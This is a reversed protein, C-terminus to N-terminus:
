GDTEVVTVNTTPADVNPSIVLPISVRSEETQGSIADTTVLKVPLLIDGAFDGPLSLNVASFDARGNVVPVSLVYEQTEFNTDVGTLVFGAPLDSIKVVLSIDDDAGKTIDVLLAQSLQQGLDVTTTEGDSETGAIVLNSDVTIDGAPQSSTAGTFNVEVVLPPPVFAASADGENNDGEDQVKASLQIFVPGSIVETANVQLSALASEPVLWSGDGNNFGGPVFLKNFFAQTAPDTPDFPTGSADQVFTLVVQIINENSSGDTNLGDGPVLYGLSMAPSSLDLIGNADSQLVGTVPNGTNDVVAISGDTEVAANLTINITGTVQRTVVLSADDEDTQSVTVLAKIGLHEDKDADEPATLVLSQGSLLATEQAATLQSRGAADFAIETGNVSLRYGESYAVPSMDLSVATVSEQTDDLTPRWNVTTPVDETGSVANTYDAADIDPTVHVVIKKNYAKSDGDNETVVIRANITIDRTSGPPPQIFLDQIGNVNLQYTAQGNADTGAYVLNLPNGNADDITVGAPIGSLLVSVTESNDNPDASSDSEGSVVNIDLFAQGDEKISTEIGTVVGNEVIASWNGNGGDTVLPDDAVGKLAIPISKPATEEVVTETQTVGGVTVTATDKTVGRVEITFDVNSDSPPLLQLGSIQSYPIEYYGNVPTLEVNNLYIKAGAPLNDTIWVFLVESGDANDGSSTLSIHPALDIRTDELGSARTVKLTAADPDPHVGVVIQRVASDATQQGPVYPNAETSRAIVDVKLDGSFDKGPVVIVNGVDVASVQYAGNGLSQVGHGTLTADGATLTLIYVLSESGDTDKLDAKLSLAIGADDETMEYQTVTKTDDWTPTDAIGRVTIRFREPPLQDVAGDNVNKVFATM